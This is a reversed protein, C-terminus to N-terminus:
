ALELAYTHWKLAESTRGARVFRQCAAYLEILCISVLHEADIRSYMM